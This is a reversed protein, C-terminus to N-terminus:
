IAMRIPSRFSWALVLGAVDFGRFSSGGPLLPNNIRISDDDGLPEIAGGSLRVSARVGKFIGRYAAGTLETRIYQVDGGLGALDQSVSFISDALRRSRTM